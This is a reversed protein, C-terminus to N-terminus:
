WAPCRDAAARSRRSRRTEDRAFRISGGFSAVRIAADGDQHQLCHSWRRSAVVARVVFSVGLGHRGADFQCIAAAGGIPHQDADRGVIKLVTNIFSTSVSFAVLAGLDGHALDRLSHLQGSLCNRGKGRVEWRPDATKWLRCPAGAVIVLVLTRVLGGGLRGVRRLRVIPRPRGFRVDHTRRFHNSEVEIWQAFRRRMAPM